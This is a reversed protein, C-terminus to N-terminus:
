DGTIPACYDTFVRVNTAYQRARPGSGNYARIAEWLDGHTARLKDDLERVVRDLCQDFSYWRKNRFFDEDSRVKQLDYQFLGYGKYVWPKDGFGQLRRTENAEEILMDTFADGFSARFAATNVPFASRSTGPYDGSADYVAREVITQVSKAGIWPVWKYATEQCVIACLHKVGYPKGAVAARLEAGFNDVLWHACAEASKKSIPLSAPTAPPPPPPPAPAAAAGLVNMPEGDIVITADGLRTMAEHAFATPFRAKLSDILAIVRRRSDWFDMIDGPGLAATPNLCGISSLFLKAAPPHAPHILIGVRNNTAALALGPMPETGAPSTDRAYGISRYRGFQTWLPYTRAEVRKGNGATRNDGPGPSECMFGELGPQAVGDVHVQYSGYTRTRAGAPHLGLRQVHLEWGRGTIPM